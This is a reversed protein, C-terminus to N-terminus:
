AGAAQLARRLVVTTGSAGRDVLVDDMVARMLLFGRGREDASRIDGNTARWRGEDRVRVVVAGDDIEAHVHVAGGDPEYAHLAANAVAENCALVVDRGTSEDVGAEDLWARLSTRLPALSAPRASMSVQLPAPYPGIGAAVGQNRLCLLAVDDALRGSAHSDISSLVRNVIEDAATDHLRRVLAVLREEGFLESGSRAEVVGDTYLLLADGLGLTITSEPFASSPFVGMLGGLADVTEVSGDARLCIVPPHAASAITVEVSGSELRSLRAVAVTCFQTNDPLQALISRNLVDLLHAPGNGPGELAATRLTYRCLATMAAAEAGRGCVDGIVLVPGTSTHFADYFDGGVEVGESGAVYASALEVGPIEPVDAPLLSQQLLGAV